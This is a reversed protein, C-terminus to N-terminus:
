ESSRWESVAWFAALSLMFLGLGGLFIGFEAINEM